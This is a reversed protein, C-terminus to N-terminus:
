SRPAESRFIEDRNRSVYEWCCALLLGGILGALTLLGVARLKRPRVPRNSVTVDGIQELPTLVDIQSQLQLIQNDINQLDHKLTRDRNIEMETIDSDIETRRKKLDYNQELLLERRKLDQVQNTALLDAEQIRDATVQSNADLTSLLLRGAIATKDQAMDWWVFPLQDPTPMRAMVSDLDGQRAEKEKLRALYVDMQKLGSEMQGIRDSLDGAKRSRLTDNVAYEKDQLVLKKADVEVGDLEQRKSSIQLDLLAKKTDIEDRDNKLKDIKHQLSKRALSINNGAANIEAYQNFAHISGEIIQTAEEPSTSLTTLTVIDGGQIGVGRPIFDAMIDPRYHDDPKGLLKNLGPGYMGRKYWRVIDKIQWSREPQDRDNYNTIGPRVTGVAQYLPAHTLLYIGGALLGAATVVVILWRRRWLVNLLGALSILGDPTADVHNSM